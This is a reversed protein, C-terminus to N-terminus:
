TTEKAYIRCITVDRCNWCYAAAVDDNPPSPQGTYRINGCKTCRIKM